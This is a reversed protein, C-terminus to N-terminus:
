RARQGFHSGPLRRRKHAARAAPDGVAPTRGFFKPERLALEKVKQLVSKRSADSAALSAAPWTEANQESDILVLLRGNPDRLVPAQPHYVVGKANLATAEVAAVTARVHPAGPLCTVGFKPTPRRAPLSPALATDEAGPPPKNRADETGLIARATTLSTLRQSAPRLKSGPAQPNAKICNLAKSPDDSPADLCAGIDYAVRPRKSSKMCACFDGHATGSRM